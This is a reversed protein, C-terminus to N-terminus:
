RRVEEAKSSCKLFVVQNADQFGVFARGNRAGCTPFPRLKRPKEDIAELAPAKAGEIPFNLFFPCPAIRLGPVGRGNELSCTLRESILAVTKSNLGV